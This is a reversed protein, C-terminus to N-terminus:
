ISKIFGVDGWGKLWIIAYLYDIIAPVGPGKPVPILDPPIM